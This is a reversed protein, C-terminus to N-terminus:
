VNIYHIWAYQVTYLEFAIKLLYESVTGNTGIFESPNKQRVIWLVVIWLVVIWRHLRHYKKPILWPCILWTYAFIFLCCDM